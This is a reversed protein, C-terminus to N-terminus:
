KGVDLAQEIRIRLERPRFPKTIYDVAGRRLGEDIEQQHAAASVLVVAVHQLYPRARIADILEHGNLGPMAVDTVLLEPREHEVLYLGYLGDTATYLDHGSQELTVVIARLVVPDDECIVIKAL